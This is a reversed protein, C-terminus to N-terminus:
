WTLVGGAYTLGAGVACLLLKDGKKVQNTNELDKLALPISAASTNGYDHINMFFKEFPVRIKKAVTSLIRRNAQHPVRWRFDTLKEGSKEAVEVIIESFTDVASRFMRGGDMFWYEDGPSINSGLPLSAGGAKRYIIDYGASDGSISIDSIIHGDSDSSLVAAGAGDGFLFATARDKKDTFRSMAESAVVLINNYTGTEIFKQAIFLAYIWGSCAAAIDFAPIKPIGLKQQIACASAPLPMDPTTTALIIMQIDRAEKGASSLAARAAEVGMDSTTQSDTLYKREKIGTVKEIYEESIDPLVDSFYDNTIVTEPVYTGLGSIYCIRPERKKREKSSIFSELDRATIRGGAGSGSIYKLQEETINHRRMLRRVRPSLREKLQARQTEENTGVEEERLAMERQVMENVNLHRMSQDTTKITLLPASVDVIDGEEAKLEVIEGNCPSEFDWVSKETEIEALPSGKEVRDGPKVYWSVVVGDVISEGTFPMPITVIFEETSM